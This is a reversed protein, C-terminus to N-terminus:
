PPCFNTGFISILDYPAVSQVVPPTVQVFASASTIASIIPSSGITLQATASPSNCTGTLPNPNCVGLVVNGGAGAPDFPLLPDATAPVTITLIITSTTTVNVAINTDTTITTAGSAIIGVKTKQTPDTSPVFGTGTIAVTFPQGGPAAQAISAPSIGSITAGPSVISVNFTVVITSVPNGWDITVTGTLTSGPTAAAFATQSFTVPIATGFSYALGKQLNPSIIPALTGGSTLSYSIPSDSSVLTIVPAPLPNGLQWTINRTTGESTTLKPASNTVLLSLPVAKPAYGSVNLYVTASYSGPAMTDAVSNSTFRISKPVLGSTSDVNLWIPLSTTDVAFFPPPTSTSTIAVDVYGPTGSGKVYTLSGSSPTPTATLTSPSVVQMTVSITKDPAPANVLHITAYNTSPSNFGGCGATPGATPTPAVTFSIPTANAPGTPTPTLTLWSPVSPASVTFPTGGTAASAISVTQAPGPTYTSGSKTCIVTFTSPTVNLGSTTANQATTINVTADLTASGGQTFRFSLPGAAFSGTACGPATTTMTVTFTIGATSNAANLTGSIPAVSIGAPLAGLAVALMSTGSLKTVPTITVTASGPGTVTSCTLTIANPTATLLNAAQMTGTCIALALLVAIIGSRRNVFLLHQM